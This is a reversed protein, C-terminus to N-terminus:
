QKVEEKPAYSIKTFKGEGLDVNVYRKLNNVEIVRGKGQPTTIKEGTKPLDRNLEKYALYEYAMCCKIRKCVGSIRSEHLPLGQEKSM